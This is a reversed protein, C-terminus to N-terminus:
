EPSPEGPKVMPHNLHKKWFEGTTDATDREIKCLKCYYNERVVTTVDSPEDPM